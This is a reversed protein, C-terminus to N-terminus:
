CVVFFSMYVKYQKIRWMHQNSVLLHNCRYVRYNLAVVWFNSNTNKKSLKHTNSNWTERISPTTIQGLLKKLMAALQGLINILGAYATAHIYRISLGNETSLKMINNRFSGRWCKHQYSHCCIQGLHFEIFDDRDRKMILRGLRM